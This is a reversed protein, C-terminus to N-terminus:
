SHKWLNEVLASALNRAETNSEIYDQLTPHSVFTACEVTQMILPYIDTFKIRDQRFALNAIENAANVVCATNGGRQMAYHALTLCPFKKEDPAEFTLTQYDAISLPREGTPRRAKAGLAYSIPLHMDPIGLQAKVAGDTFEVMSHVISQPHVVATIQEPRMDFLWRAEILEFAKNLMTASDITIKAGMDWNPHKLAQAATVNPLMEAPLSRFPGGSATIILRSVRQPDEGQLCQFIASHESDVPYVKSKSSKLLQTILEGAVVLTEKNALAIDKGAEIARITPLLGSYGVTATVVMDVDEAEMEALIAAEGASIEIGSGSLSQSLAGYQSDDAIVVRRPRYKLAQEALPAVRSGGILTVCEFESSNREIIDLTQTGISGTSGLIAIRKKSQNM